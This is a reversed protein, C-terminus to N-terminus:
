RFRALLEDRVEDWPRGADPNARHEALRERIVRRHWEPSPIERQRDAIRKWLAQVYELQEKV